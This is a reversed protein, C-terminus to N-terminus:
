VDDTNQDKVIDISKMLFDRNFKFKEPLEQYAFATDTVAMVAIEEDNKLEDALSSYLWGPRDSAIKKFLLEKNNEYTLKEQKIYVGATSLISRVGGPKRGLEEAIGELIEKSTFPTPNKQTYLEVIKQHEPNLGKKTSAGAKKDTKRSDKTNSSFLKKFFSM